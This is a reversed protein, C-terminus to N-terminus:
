EVKRVIAVLVGQVTLDQVPRLDAFDPNESRLVHGLRSDWILRKLTCEGDILAAVIQGERPKKKELLALDGDLIGAGIMSSGRVRVAFCATRNSIGLSEPTLRM